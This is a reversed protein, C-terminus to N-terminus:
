TKGNEEGSMKKGSDETGAFVHSCGLNSSSRAV